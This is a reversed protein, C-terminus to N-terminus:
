AELMTKLDALKEAWFKKFKEASKQDKIKGHNIGVNSKGAGKPYLNASVLMDGKFDFRVSKPKTAKRVTLLDGVWSQRLKDDAFAEFLRAVPVNITKNGGIEFGRAKEHLKRLGRAQEYGVTLMQCWWGGVDFNEGIWIAIDKHALKKAGAKDLVKFWGDWDKGTAKLVAEDSAQKKIHNPM